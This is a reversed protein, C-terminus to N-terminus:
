YGFAFWLTKLTQASSFQAFGSASTTNWNESTRASTVYNGPSATAILCANPFAIPFTWTMGTSTNAAVATNTTGWQVILGSPLKQYGGAALSSGFAGSYGLETTGSVAVWLNASECEVVLVDGPMLVIGGAALSGSLHYLNDEAGQRVITAPYPSQNVFEIRGIAPLVASTLPLTVTVPGTNNVVQVTGGVVAPTLTATASVLNFGSAQLGMRALAEMTAVKTSQDFQPPTQFVGASRLATLLQDSEAKSPDIGAAAPVSLLEAMLMNMFESRLLTASQGTAPNGDTFWGPTGEATAAPRSAVATPDDYQYM